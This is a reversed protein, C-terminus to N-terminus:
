LYSLWWQTSQHTRKYRDFWRCLPFLVLVVSAWVLYVTPLDYGYGKLAPADALSSSLVMDAMRYGAIPAALTAVVHILLFHALYYFM